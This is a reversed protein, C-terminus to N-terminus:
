IAVQGLCSERTWSESGALSLEQFAWALFMYSLRETSEIPRSLPMYEANHQFANLGLRWRKSTFGAKSLESALQIQLDPATHNRCIRPSIYAFTETVAHPRPFDRKQDHSIVEM